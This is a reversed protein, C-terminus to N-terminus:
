NFIKAKEKPSKFYYKNLKNNRVKNYRQKFINTEKTTKIIKPINQNINSKSFILDADMFNYLKESERETKNINFVIKPIKKKKLNEINSSINDTKMYFNFNNNREILNKIKSKSLIRYPNKTENIDTLIKNSLSVKTVSVSNSNQLKSNMDKNERLKYNKKTKLFLEKRNKNKFFDNNFKIKSFKKSKSASSYRKLFPSIMNLYFNENDNSNKKKATNNKSINSFKLNVKKDEKLPYGQLINKTFKNKSLIYDSKKIASSNMIISCIRDQLIDMKEEIKTYFVKLNDKINNNNAIFHEFLEIDIEFLISDETCQATYLYNGNKELYEIDGLFEGNQLRILNYDIKESYKGKTIYTKNSTFREKMLKGMIIEPELDCNVTRNIKLSLNVKGNRILYFARFKEGQKFIIENKSFYKKILCQQLKSFFNNVSKFLKLNVLFNTIFSREIKNYRKYIKDYEEKSLEGIICDTGCTLVCNCFPINNYLFQEGFVNGESLTCDLELNNNIINKFLSEFNKSNKNKSKENEDQAESYLTKYNSVFINEINISKLYKKIYACFNNLFEEKEIHNEKSIIDLNNTVQEMSIRYLNLKGKFIFYLKTVPENYNLLSYDKSYKKFTLSTIFSNLISEGYTPSLKILCKFYISGSLIDKLKDLINKNNRDLGKDILPIIVNKINQELM